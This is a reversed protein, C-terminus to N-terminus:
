LIEAIYKEIEYKGFYSVEQFQGLPNIELFYFEKGSKLIDITGCNLQLKNM